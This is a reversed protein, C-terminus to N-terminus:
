KIKCLHSSNPKLFPCEQINLKMSFIVHRLTSTGHVHHSVDSKVCSRYLNITQVSVNRCDTAPGSIGNKFCRLFPVVLLLVGSGRQLAPSPPPPTRYITIMNYRTGKLVVFIATFNQPGRKFRSKYQIQRMAPNWHVDNTKRM